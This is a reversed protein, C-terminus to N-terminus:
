RGSESEGHQEIDMGNGREARDGTKRQRLDRSGTSVLLCSHSVSMAKSERVRRRPCLTPQQQLRHPTVPRQECGGRREIRQCVCGDLGVRVGCGHGDRVRERTGAGAEEGRTRRDRVRQSESGTSKEWRGGQRASVRTRETVRRHMPAYVRAADVHQRLQRRKRM